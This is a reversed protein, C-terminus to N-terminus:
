LALCPLLSPTIRVKNVLRIQLSPVNSLFACKHFGAEHAHLRGGKCLAVSPKINQWRLIKVMKDQVQTEFCLRIPWHLVLLSLPCGHTCATTTWVRLPEPGRACSGLPTSLWRLWDPTCPRLPPLAPLQAWPPLPPLLWLLSFPRPHFALM